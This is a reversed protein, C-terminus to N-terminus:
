TLPPLSSNHSDKALQAELEEIRATLVKVQERLLDVQQHLALILDDKESSSLKSLDSRQM